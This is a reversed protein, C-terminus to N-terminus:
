LEQIVIEGNFNSKISYYRDSSCNSLDIILKESLRFNFVPTKETAFSSICFLKHRKKYTSEYGLLMCQNNENYYKVLDTGSSSLKIKDLLATGMTFRNGRLATGMALSYDDIIRDKGYIRSPFIYKENFLSLKSFEVALYAGSWSREIVAIENGNTDIVSFSASITNGDPGSSSGYIKIRLLEQGLYSPCGKVSFYLRAYIFCSYFCYIIILFAFIFSFDKIFHHNKKM